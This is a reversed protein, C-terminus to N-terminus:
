NLSGKSLMSKILTKMKKFPIKLPKLLSNKYKV